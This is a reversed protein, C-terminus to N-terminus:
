AREGRGITKVKFGIKRLKEADVILRGDFVFAPKNMGEYVLAWDIERFEKWETAIVVAEAGKCAELASTSITVQKKVLPSSSYVDALSSYFNCVIRSLRTPSLRLSTRGFRTTNLKLTTSTSSHGRPKSIRLSLSPQQSALIVPTLRSPSDSYLLASPSFFMLLSPYYAFSLYLCVKGTITNFLTDVVSKSFRKKQYENMEVVQRWYAAVEPL